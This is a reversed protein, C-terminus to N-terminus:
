ARRGSGAAGVPRWGAVRRQRRAAGMGGRPELADADLRRHRLRYRAAGLGRVALSVSRDLRADGGVKTVDVTGNWALIAVSGDEGRSGIAQLMDGAGDGAVETALREDRLQELM